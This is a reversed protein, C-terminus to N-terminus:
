LNKIALIFNYSQQPKAFNAPNSESISIGYIICCGTYTFGIKRSIEINSVLDRTTSVELNVNNTVKITSGFNLQERPTLNNM